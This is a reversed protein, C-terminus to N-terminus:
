DWIATGDALDFFHANEMNVGITLKEGMAASSRPDFRGM